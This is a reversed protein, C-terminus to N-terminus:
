NTKFHKLIFYSIFFAILAIVFSFLLKAFIINKFFSIINKFFFIIFFVIIGVLFSISFPHDYIVSKRTKNSKRNKTGKDIKPYKKGCYPCYNDDEKANKNEKYFMICAPNQCYKTILRGTKSDYNKKPMLM